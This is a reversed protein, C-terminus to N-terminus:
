VGYQKVLGKRKMEGVESDSYGVERLVQETHEGLRPAPSAARREEGDDGIVFSPSVCKVKGVDPHEYTLLLDNAAVQPDSFVEERSRLLEAPFGLELAKKLWYEGKQTGVVGQVLEWVESSRALRDKHTAYRPEEALHELELAKCLGAWEKSSNITVVIYRDDLCRYPRYLAGFQTAPYPTNDGEVKILQQGQIALAQGLLSLKILTGKGTRQRQWLGLMAVYPVTMAASMDCVMYTLLVPSGDPHRHADLIGTRAQLLLDYGPRDAEAGKEGYGSLRVYVIGPNTRNVTEYDVGAHQAARPRMSTLLVDSRGAIRQVIERGQESSLDVSISRKNRNLALYYKSVGPAGPLPFLYRSLDGELPEVKTVEAGQDALNMAAGPVALVQGLELVKVGELPRIM